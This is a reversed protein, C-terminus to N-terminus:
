INAHMCTHWTAETTGSEKRGWLSYARRNMHNELCLYQNDSGGKLSTGSRPNLGANRIDGANPLPNKVM